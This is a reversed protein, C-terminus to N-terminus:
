REIHTLGSGIAKGTAVCAMPRARRRQRRAVWQRGRSAPLSACEGTQEAGHGLRLISRAGSLGIPCECRPDAVRRGSPGSGSFASVILATPWGVVAVGFGSVVLGLMTAANDAQPRARATFCHRRTLELVAVGYGREDTVSPMVFSERGTEAMDIERAGARSFSAPLVAYHRGSVLLDVGTIQSPGLHDMGHTDLLTAPELEVEYRVDADCFDILPGDLVAHV